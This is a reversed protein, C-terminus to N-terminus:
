LDNQIKKQFINPKTKTTTSLATPWAQSQSPKRQPQHRRLGPRHSAQNENHNIVGYALGTVKSHNLKQM